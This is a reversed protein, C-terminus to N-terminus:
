RGPGRPGVTGPRRSADAEGHGEGQPVEGLFIPVRHLPPPEGPLGARSWAVRLTMLLLRRARLLLYGALPLEVLLASALAALFDRSGRALMVDFWADCVLLVATAVALPIVVQRRRWASWATGALAALLGADFGVWAYRWQRAVYHVPLSMALYAIWPILALCAVVLVRLARRHRRAAGPPLPAADM